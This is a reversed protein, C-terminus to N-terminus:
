NHTSNIIDMFEDESYVHIGWEIAKKDKSSGKLKGIVLGDIQKNFKEAFMGGNSEVLQKLEAKKGYDFTGTLYYSKGQLVGEIEQKSEDTKFTLIDYLECMLVLNDGNELFDIISNAVVNGIDKIKLLESKNCNIVDHWDNNFYNCIDKSTSKGVNPIGLAFIFQELKCTKSKGIASILNNYSKIGFGELKIIRDRYQELSYIDLIDNIFGLKVFLELTKESLGEINMANRSCYHVLRQILKAKCNDNVCYLVESEKDRRIETPYGCCSCVSPIAIDIVDDNNLSDEVVGMIEPIVDNSRRIFVTSNLKVGKRKIDTLNNLTARKVTVGNLEVPELIGTPVIKGTRTTNWEVDIIKTTDEEAEYKYAMSFKPFKITYGMKNRTEMDDIAIVVGDIDYQLNPRQKEINNIEHIVEEYTDCLKYETIPLGLEKMYELQSHYTAFELGKIDNINYFIINPKRKATEKTNLNRLAGAVGNRLNKLPTKATKNYEQFAKKTMLGEGHVSIFNVYNGKLIKPLNIITSVQSTIDEGIEGTGRTSGQKFCGSDYDCKVTLGDYKKSVVYTPNPLSNEKCFKVNKNYWEKLEDFSQCKDLSWLKNKHNVKEFKDLIADGVRLSPSNPLRVGVEDELRLLENYKKDYEKDSISSNDLVYYEYSYRNLLNVLEEIEKLKDLM